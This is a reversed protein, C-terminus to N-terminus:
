RLGLHKRKKKQKRKLEYPLQECDKEPKMLQEFLFSKEKQIEKTPKEHSQM